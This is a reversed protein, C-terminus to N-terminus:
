SRASALCSAPALRSARPSPQEDCQHEELDPAFLDSEDKDTRLRLTITVRSAGGARVGVGRWAVRPGHEDAWVTYHGPDLHYFRFEGREDTTTPRGSTNAGVLTVTVNEVAKGDQDTVRGSIQGTTPVASVVAACLLAAFFLLVNKSTRRM